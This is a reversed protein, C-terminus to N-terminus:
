SYRQSGNENDSEYEHAKIQHRADDVQQDDDQDDHVEATQHVPPVDREVGHGQDVEHHRHADAHLKAAVEGPSERDVHPGVSDVSGPGIRIRIQNWKSQQLVKAFEANWWIFVASCVTM